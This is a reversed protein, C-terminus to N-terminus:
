AELLSCVVMVSLRRTEAMHGARSAFEAGSPPMGCVAREQESLAGKLAALDQSRPVFTAEGGMWGPGHALRAAIAAAPTQAALDVKVLGTHGRAVGVAEAIYAYRCKRGANCMHLEHPTQLASSDPARNYGPRASYDLVIGGMCSSPTPSRVRFMHRCEHGHLVSLCCNLCLTCVASTSACFHESPHLHVLDFQQSRM